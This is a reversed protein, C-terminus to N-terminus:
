RKKQLNNLSELRQKLLLLQSEYQPRRVQTLFDLTEKNTRPQGIRDQSANRDLSPDVLQDDTNPLGRQDREFAQQIDMNTQSLSNEVRVIDAKVKDITKSREKKAIDKAEQEAVNKGMMKKVRTMVSKAYRRNPKKARALEEESEDSDDEYDAIIDYLHESASDYDTPGTIFSHSSLSDDDDFEDESEFESATSAVELEIDEAEDEETKEKSTTKPIKTKRRPNFVFEEDQRRKISAQGNRMIRVDESFCYTKLFTKYAILPNKQDSLESYTKKISENNGILTNLEPPIKGIRRLYEYLTHTNEIRKAYLGNKVHLTYWSYLIEGDINYNEIIYYLIDEKEDVLPLAWMRFDGITKILSDPNYKDDKMYVGLAMTLELAFTNVLQVFRDRIKRKSFQDITDIKAQILKSVGCFDDNIGTATPWTLGIVELYYLVDEKTYGLLLGVVCHYLAEFNEDHKNRFDLTATHIFNSLALARDHSASRGNHMIYLRKGTPDNLAPEPLTFYYADDDIDHFDDIWAIPKRGNFVDSVDATAGRDGHIVGEFSSLPRGNIIIEDHVADLIEEASKLQALKKQLEKHYAIPHYSM